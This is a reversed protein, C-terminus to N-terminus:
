PEICRNSFDLYASGDLSSPANDPDLEAILEEIALGIITKDFRVTGSASGGEFGQSTIVVEETAIDFLAAAQAKLGPVDSAYKRRLYQKVYVLKADDNM